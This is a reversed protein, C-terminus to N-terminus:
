EVCIPQKLKVPQCWSNEGDYVGTILYTINQNEILLQPRERRVCHLISDNEFTIDHDYVILPSYQRWKHIGDDSYLHIGWRVRSSVGGVNDECIMHYKGQSKFLYFDELRCEPWVNENVTKYPGKYHTAEAIIVQLETNR